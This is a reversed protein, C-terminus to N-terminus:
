DGNDGKIATVASLDFSKVFSSLASEITKLWWDAESYRGNTRGFELADDDGLPTYNGDVDVTDEPCRVESQKKQWYSVQNKAKELLEGLADGVRSSPAANVAECIRTAIRAWQENEMYRPQVALAQNMQLPFDRSVFIMGEITGVADSARLRFQWGNEMKPESVLVSSFAPGEFISQVLEEPTLKGAWRKLAWLMEAKANEIKQGQADM